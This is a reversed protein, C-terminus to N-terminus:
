GGLMDERANTWGDGASGLDMHPLYRADRRFVGAADVRCEPLLGSTPPVQSRRRIRWLIFTAVLLEWGVPVPGAPRRDAGLPAALQRVLDVVTTDVLPRVRVVVVDVAPVDAWRITQTLVPRSIPALAGAESSQPRRPVPARRGHPRDELTSDPVPDPGAAAVDPQEWSGTAIAADLSPSTASDSAFLEGLEITEGPALVGAMLGADHHELGLVHGVEHLLVTLLNLRMAGAGAVSWGWGAADIDLVITNGDTDAVKRDPLDGFVLRVVDSPAISGVAAWRAIADALVARAEDEGIPSATTV